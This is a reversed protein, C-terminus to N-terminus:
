AQIEYDQHLTLKRLEQKNLKTIRLWQERKKYKEWREPFKASSHRCVINVPTHEVAYFKAYFTSEVDSSM